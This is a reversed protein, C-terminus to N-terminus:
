ENIPGWKVANAFILQVADQEWTYTGDNEWTLSDGGRDSLFVSYEGRDFYYKGLSIWGPEENDLLVEVDTVDDASTM